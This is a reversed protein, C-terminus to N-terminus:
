SVLGHLRILHRLLREHGDLDSAGALAGHSVVMKDNCPAPRSRRDNPLEREHVTHTADPFALIDASARIM